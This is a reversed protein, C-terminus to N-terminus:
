PSPQRNGTGVEEMTERNFKNQVKRRYIDRIPHDDLRSSRILANLLSMAVNKLTFGLKRLSKWVTHHSVGFRKGLEHLTADPSRRVGAALAEPDLKRWGGWSTRPALTGQRDAALYRYVVCRAVGFRRSAAAKENVFRVVRKRLDLSYAKM